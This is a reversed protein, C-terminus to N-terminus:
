GGLYARSADLMLVNEPKMDRHIIGCSHLFQTALLLQFLIHRVEQSNLQESMHFLDGGDTYELVLYLDVSDTVLKGKVMKWRGTPSPMMFLDKLEM